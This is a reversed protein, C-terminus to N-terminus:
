ATCNCRDQAATVVAVVVFLVALRLMSKCTTTPAVMISPSACPKVVPGRAETPPKPPTKMPEEEQPPPQQHPTDVLELLELLEIDTDPDIKNDDANSLLNSQQEANGEDDNDEDVFHITILPLTRGSTKTNLEAAYDGVQGQM